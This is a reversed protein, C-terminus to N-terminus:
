ASLEGFEREGPPRGFLQQWMPRDRHRRLRSNKRSSRQDALAQLLQHREAATRSLDRDHTISPYPHLHNM